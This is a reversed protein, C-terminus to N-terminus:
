TSPSPARAARRATTGTALAVSNGGNAATATGGVCTTRGGAAATSVLGAPYTDTVGRRHGGGRELEVAHDHAGLHRQHRHFGARIGQDGDGARAGDVHRQGRHRHAGGARDRHARGHHQQPRRAHVLHVNIDRRPLERGLCPQSASSSRSTARRSRASAALASRRRSQVTRAAAPSFGTQRRRSASTSRGSRSRARERGHAVGNGAPNTLTLRLASTGGSGISTPNFSKTLTPQTYVDVCQNTISNTINTTASISAAGNTNNALPCAGLTPTGSTTVPVTITCTVAPNVIQRNTVTITSSGAGATVSGGSCTGGAAGGTAVLGAPLTDTFSFTQTPNGAPVTLTFTLTTTGGVAIATPAFAKTLVPVSYFTVSANASNTMGASIGSMNGPANTYTGVTASTVDVAITCSAQGAALNGGAFTITNSAVVATVTGNCQTAVPASAVV